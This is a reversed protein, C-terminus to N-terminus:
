YAMDTLEPKVGETLSFLTSLFEKRTNDIRGLCTSGHCTLALMEEIRMESGAEDSIYLWGNM